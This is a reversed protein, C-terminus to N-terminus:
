SAVFNSLLSRTKTDGLEKSLRWVREHPVGAGGDTQWPRLILMVGVRWMLELYQIAGWEQDIMGQIDIPANHHM